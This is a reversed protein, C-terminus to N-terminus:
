TPLMFRAVLLVAVPMLAATAAAMAVVTALTTTSTAVALPVVRSAVVTPATLASLAHSLRVTRVM